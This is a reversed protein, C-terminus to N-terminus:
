MQMGNYGAGCFGILLACQRKPLRPTKPENGQTAEVEEDNNRTGRRRGKGKRRYESRSMNKDKKTVKSGSGSGGADGSAVVDEKHAEDSGGDFKKRKTDNSSDESQPELEDLKRRKPPRTSEEGM